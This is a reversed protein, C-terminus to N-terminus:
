GDADEGRRPRPSEFHIIEVKTPFTEEGSAATRQLVAEKVKMLGELAQDLVEITEKWGQEDVDIPIRTLQNEEHAFFTGSVMAESVDRSILSMITTSLVHQEKPGLRKLDSEDFYSGTTARYFSEVVRGGRAPRQAVLEIWELDLLQKVHYTVNNIPEGLQSAVERPSAEREWFVAMAHLRTPHSIAAAIRESLLAPNQATM